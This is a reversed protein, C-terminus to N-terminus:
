RYDAYAEATARPIVFPKWEDPQLAYGPIFPTNVGFMAAGMCAAVFRHAGDVIQDGGLIGHCVIIPTMQTQITHDRIHDPDVAGSEVLRQARAMDPPWSFTECHKTAWERMATVNFYMPQGSGDDDLRYVETGAGREIEDELLRRAVPDAIQKKQLLKRLLTKQRQREQRTSM